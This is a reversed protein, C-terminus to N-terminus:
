LVLLNKQIQQLHKSILLQHCLHNQYYSSLRVNNTHIIQIKNVLVILSFVQFVYQPSLRKHNSFENERDTSLEEKSM